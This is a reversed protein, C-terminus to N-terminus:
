PREYCAGRLDISHAPAALGARLKTMARMANTRVTSASCGLIEGIRADDLDEYYRLVITARQRDPLAVILRWLADREAVDAGVDTRDPPDGAVAGVAERASRRRWRSINANVLMRRLYVDPDDRRLIKSWRPYVRGLVEQVLDEAISPDRSILRAFRVLGAGRARVYEEFTVHLGV